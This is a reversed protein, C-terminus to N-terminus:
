KRETIKKETGNLLRSINGKHKYIVIGAILVSFSTAFIVYNISNTIKYDFFYTIVFTIIPYSFAASLSSLSIIKTIFFVILFITILILFVRWDIFLMVAWTTLIGKGGKFGFFCPYVHGLFCFFGAVYAIYQIIITNEDIGPITQCIAKGILIAAVGKLFDGAFTLIAPIVGVSRLVNTFGANGSGKKRIDQKDGCMRTIIISFNLCGILYAIVSSIIFQMLCNNILFSVEKGM